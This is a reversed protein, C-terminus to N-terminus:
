LKLIEKYMQMVPFQISQSITKGMWVKTETFHCHRVDIDLEEGFSM